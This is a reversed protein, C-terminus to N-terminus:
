ISRRSVHHSLFPDMALLCVGDEIHKRISWGYKELVQTYKRAFKRFAICLTSYRFGQHILRQTLKYHRWTYNSCIRGIRVLQSIYVGYAPGSPINCSLYPFNVINFNFNDRKDYVATSYKGNEITILVVTPNKLQLKSPYIDAIVSHFTANNPTLLDDIYRMTHNWFCQKFNHKISMFSLNLNIPPLANCM